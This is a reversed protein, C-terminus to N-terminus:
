HDEGEAEKGEDVFHEVGVVVPFVFEAFGRRRGAAYFIEKIAGAADKGVFSIGAVEGVSDADAFVQFGTAGIDQGDVEGVTARAGHEDVIAAVLGDAAPPTASLPPCTM